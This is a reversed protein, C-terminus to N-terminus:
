KYFHLNSGSPWCHVFYSFLFRAVSFCGPGVDICSHARSLCPTFNRSCWKVSGLSLAMAERHGTSTCEGELADLRCCVRLVHLSVWASGLTPAEQTVGGIEELAVQKGEARQGTWASIAVFVATGRSQLCWRWCQCNLRTLCLLNPGKAHWRTNKLLFNLNCM